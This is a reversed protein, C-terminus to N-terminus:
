SSDLFHEEAILMVRLGGEVCEVRLRGAALTATKGDTGLVGVMESVAVAIREATPVAVEVIGDRVEGGDLVRGLVRGTGWVWGNREFTAAFSAAIEEVNLTLPLAVPYM